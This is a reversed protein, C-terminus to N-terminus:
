IVGTQPLSPTQPRNEFGRWQIGAQPGPLTPVAGGVPRDQADEEGWRGKGGGAGEEMAM